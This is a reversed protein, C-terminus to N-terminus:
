PTIVGIKTGIVYWIKGNSDTVVSSATNYNNGSGIIVSRTVSSTGTGLTSVSLRNGSSLNPGGACWFTSSASSAFRGSCSQPYAVGTGDTALLTLGSYSSAWLTSGAVILNSVSQQSFITIAGTATIRGLGTPSTFWLNGDPGLVFDYSQNFSYGTNILSFDVSATGDPKIRTIKYSDSRAIWLNGDAGFAIMAAQVGSPFPIETLSGNSNVRIARDATAIWVRSSSDLVMDQVSSSSLTPLNVRTVAGSSTIKVLNVPTSLAFDYEIFYVTGDTNALLQTAYNADFESAEYYKFSQTPAASSLGNKDKLNINVTGPTGAPVVVQMQTANQITKTMVETTGFLVKTDADFNQGYLTLTYGGAKTGGAADTQTVFPRSDQVATTQSMGYSAAGFNYDDPFSFVRLQYIHTKDLTIGNLYGSTGYTTGLRVM